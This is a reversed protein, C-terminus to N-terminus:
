NVTVTVTTTEITTGSTGTVTVTYPGTTTGGTLGGSGTPASNSGCGLANGLLLVATLTLALLPLRRRRSPLLFLGLTAMAALLGGMGALWSTPQIRLEGHTQPTTNITLVSTASTSATLVVSTPALACTPINTAGTPSATVACTLAVTGTFTGTPAITITTNGSAGPSAITISGAPTLTFANNAVVASAVIVDIGVTHVYQGTSDTGVVTVTYTGPTSVASSNINVTTATTPVTISSSGLSCTLGGTASCTLNVTGTFGNIATALIADGFPLTQNAAMGVTNTAATLSFDSLNNTITVTTASPQYNTDGIYEVAIVNTGTILSGSSVGITATATTSTATAIYAGGVYNGGAFLYVIGTPTAKGTQGTVTVNINVGASPSTTNATATATTTSVLLSSSGIVLTYKASTSNYNGDGPYSYTITYTGAATGAPITVTAVGESANTSPDVSPALSASTTMTSPGGSFSLSGSPATEFANAAISNEVIFSLVVPGGNPSYQNNSFVSLTPTDKVVTFTSSSSTSASYSADGSYVAKVTHSGIAADYDYNAEGVSNLGLSGLTSSGDTFTITGTPSTFTPCTGGNTECNLYATLDATPAPLGELNIAEGYTVSGGSNVVTYASSNSGVVLLGTASTEPTVTISVPTSTSSANATDGSYRGYVNYSGGPLYDITSSFAGSTLPFDTLGAGSPLTSTTMLAVSGTPKTSLSNTVAGSVTIQTGHTFSTSSPTLTTTTGAFTVKNWDTMLVNADITGLGSALDYGTGANYERTTGSGIAGEVVSGTGLNQDVVTIPNTVTICGDPKEGSPTTAINCPMTNSGVTVDHFAAPYQTALPYLVYNAQGQRGYKQNILAMIGAFAPASASTGGAGDIQVSGTSGVPQCDGDSDCLPYYSYNDGNAAFLSVDPLDRVSDAPVGTGTQWAPKPYGVCPSSTLGCNSAGGSGGVINTTGYYQYSNFADLGYQSNNWPQEPIVSKLSAVPTNNSATETWYSAVQTALTNGGIAYDSYYFDTGGVAINYPTSAWGNVAQGQTAYSQTDFDDCGASGSDSAAVVVTIGQAAAQQWLGNLFQNQATGNYVECSEVSLSMVPAINNYVAHEAALNFGSSLATDSAIVLDIQAGPATASTMEIDLYAESAWGAGSGDPSNVGNIGPDTGDIIVQLPITPLGFLSRYLNFYYADVNSINIVAITQGAGNNGATLLPKTDYQIAFDAPAVVFYYGTSPSGLTWPDQPTNIPTSMSTQPNYTAKGTTKTPPKLPFNNLSSFGGFVPALAAPIQPDTANGYHMRGGVAYQHIETHFANRFQGATGEFELTQHGPNLKTVNFGKGTLWATLTAIDEDSPGFQKGFQDPTLWQHFSPSTPNHLDDILQRVATQQAPSQKLQIQIRKLPTSDPVTGRDNAATALHHVTGPLTVRDSEDIKATLRSPQEAVLAAPLLLTIGIVLSIRRLSSIM